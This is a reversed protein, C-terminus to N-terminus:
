GDDPVSRVWDRAEELHNLVWEVLADVLGSPLENRVVQDTRFERPALIDVHAWDVPWEFEEYDADEMEALKEGTRFDYFRTIGHEEQGGTVLRYGAAEYGLRGAEEEMDDQDVAHILRRVLDHILTESM